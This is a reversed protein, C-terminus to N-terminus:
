SPCLFALGHISTSGYVTETGTWVINTAGLKLAMNIAENRSSELGAASFVGYLSSTGHVDSLLKCNLVQEKLSVQIHEDVAKGGVGGSTCASLILITAASFSSFILGKLGLM